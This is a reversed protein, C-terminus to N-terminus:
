KKRRSLGIMVKVLGGAECLFGGHDLPKHPAEGDQAHLKAKQAVDIQAHSRHRPQLVRGLLRAMRVRLGGLGNSRTPAVSQPAFLRIAAGSPAQPAMRRASGLEWWYNSATAVCSNAQHAWSGDTVQQWRPQQKQHSGREAPRISSHRCRQAGAAGNARCLRDGVLLKFRHCCLWESPLAPRGGTARLPPLAPMREASAIEWWYNSATPACGNAPYRGAGVM